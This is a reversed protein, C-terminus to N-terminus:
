TRFHIEAPYAWKKLEEPPLAPPEQFGGASLTLYYLEAAEELYCARLFAAGMNEGLAVAGHSQLLCCDANQLVAAAKQALDATGPRGYPAVPVTASRGLYSCEYVIPPIPRNLVAFATCYRAHTHVVARADPRARYIALHMLAESSPKAAGDWEIVNADLDLVCVQQACLVERAIGSPSLVVCGSAPDFISFNGSKHKCMGLADAKKATQVVQQKLDELM